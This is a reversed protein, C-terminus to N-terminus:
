SYLSNSTGISFPPFKLRRAHVIEPNQKGGSRSSVIPKTEWFNESINRVSGIRKSKGHITAFRLYEYTFLGGEKGAPDEGAEEGIGASYMRITGPEVYEFADEFIKRTSMLAVPGGKAFVETFMRSEKEPAILTRCTDLIVTQWTSKPALLIDESEYKNDIWLYTKGSHRLFGGHGSYQVFVYSATQSQIHTQIEKATKNHLIDIEHEYWNGGISSLLYKRYNNLDVEVGQLYGQEGPKGGLGVLIAKRTFAM